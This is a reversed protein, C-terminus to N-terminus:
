VFYDHLMLTVPVRQLGWRELHCHQQLVIRWLIPCNLLQMLWCLDFQVEKHLHKLDQQLGLQQLTIIILIFKMGTWRNCEECAVLLIYAVETTINTLEHLRYTRKNGEEYGLTHGNYLNLNWSLYLKFLISASDPLRVLSKWISLMRGINRKSMIQRLNQQFNVWLCEKTKLEEAVKM